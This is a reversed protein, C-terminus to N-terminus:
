FREERGAMVDDVIRGSLGGLARRAREFGSHRKAKQVPHAAAHYSLAMDYLKMVAENDLQDLTEMIRQRLNM